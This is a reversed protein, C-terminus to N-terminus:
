DRRELAGPSPKGAEYHMMVQSASTRFGNRGYFDVREPECFLSVIEVEGLAELLAAVMREGVGRGRYETAIIVDEVYARYLGDTLARTYGVLREGDWAGVAVGAALVRALGEPTRVHGWDASAFLAPLQAPDISRERHTLIEISV